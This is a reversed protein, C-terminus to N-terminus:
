FRLHLSRTAPGAKFNDQLQIYRKGTAHDRKLQVTGNAWHAADRGVDDLRFNNSAQVNGPAYADAVTVREIIDDTHGKVADRITSFLGASATGATLGSCVATTLFTRRSINHKM